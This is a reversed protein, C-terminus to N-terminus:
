HLLVQSFCSASSCTIFPFSELSILFNRSQISHISLKLVKQYEDPELLFSSCLSPSSAREEVAIIHM